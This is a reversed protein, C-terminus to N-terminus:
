IFLLRYYKTITLFNVLGVCGDIEDVLEDRVINLLAMSNTCVYIEAGMKKMQMIIEIFNEIHGKKIHKKLIDKKYEAEKNLQFYSDGGKKLYELSWYSFFFLVKWGLALNAQAISLGNYVRDYSGSHFIIGLGFKNEKEPM